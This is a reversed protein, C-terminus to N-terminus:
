AEKKYKKKTAEGGRIYREDWNDQLVKSVDEYLQKDLEPLREALDKHATSKSVCYVYAVERIACKNKLLYNAIDIVREAIYDKM